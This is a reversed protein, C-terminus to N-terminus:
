KNRPLKEGQNAMKARPYFAQIDMCKKKRSPSCLNEQHFSFMQMYNLNVFLLFFPKLPITEDHVGMINM